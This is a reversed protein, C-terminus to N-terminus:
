HPINDYFHHTDEPIVSKLQQLHEYKSSQIKLRSSYLNPYEMVTTIKRPRRPLQQLDDLFDLKYYIIGQPTYLLHCINAVTPDNVKNGPRISSYNHTQSSDYNKFFTHNLYEVKYPFPKLRAEKTVSVYDSPLLIDRHRLKREIAAHVSDVEMQTHGKTLYKQHITFQNQIALNLLANSLIKNKNQYGCSDSWITIIKPQESPWNSIMNQLYYILCSTFNSSKLEGETENWWFCSVDHTHLNYISYNHCCLKTKYYLASANIFPALKVAQVDVSIVALSGKAAEEKDTNKEIRANEKKKIHATWDLYNLQGVEHQVCLDCRDKKPKFLGINKETLIESFTFRCVFDMNSEKCKETYLRYLQQKSEIVPELYVKLTDRRCYHSPMKPLSDIFQVAFCKSQKIKKDKVRNRPEVNNDSSDKQRTTLEGADNKSVPRMGHQQGSMAWNRVSWEGLGFTNCFMTKCVEKRESNIKIFYHMTTGRRDGSEARRKVKPKICDVLSAVYTKREDWSLVSWFNNFLEKRDDEIIEQCFRKGSKVCSEKTCKKGMLRERRPTNSERTVHGDEEKKRSYGEYKKGDKRLLKNKNRVWQSPDSKNRRKRGTNIGDPSINNLLQPSHDVLLDNDPENVPSRQVTVTSSCSSNSNEDLVFDPDNQHCNELDKNLLNENVDDNMTVDENKPLEIQSLINVVKLETDQYSVSDVFENNNSLILETFSESFGMQQLIDVETQPDDEDFSNNGNVLENLISEDDM